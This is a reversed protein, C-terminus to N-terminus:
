DGDLYVLEGGDAHLDEEADRRARGDISLYLPDPVLVVGVSGDRVLARVRRWGTRQHVRVEPGDEEDVDDTHLSVNERLCWQRAADRDAARRAAADRVARLSVYLLARPAEAGAARRDTFRAPPPEVPGPGRPEEAAVGWVAPKTM